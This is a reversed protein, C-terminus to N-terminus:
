AKSKLLVDRAQNVRSALFDSGGRDPHLKNILRRHATIIDDESPNDNLGLIQLAEKRDPDQLDPQQATQDQFGKQAARVFFHSKKDRDHYYEALKALQEASLDAFNQGEYLGKIVKGRVAKNAVDIELDLYETTFHAKGGTKQMWLPVLRMLLFAGKRLFPLTGAVVAGAWHMRGTVVGLLIMAVALLIAGQVWLQKKQKPNVRQYKHFWKFIFYLLVLGLLLKILM